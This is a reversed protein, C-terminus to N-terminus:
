SRAAQGQRGRAMSALIGTLCLPAFIWFCIRTVEAFLPYTEPGLRGPGLVSSIVLATLAMSSIQGCLRTVTIVGSAQGLRMPPVASMIANTNPASFLAFGAGFLAMTLILTLLGTDMDLKYIFILLALLIVGLGASALRGPDFRDSLRGSIPTLLAQVLPQAVLILGAQSPAYGKSYQLYLSLLLTVSFSSLYSIFAALSSFSFRRSGTFLGLELIPSKSRRTFFLFAALLALGLIFAEMSLNKGFSALGSFGFGVALAWLLASGVDLSDNPSVPADNKVKHILILPPILGIVTFWFISPWGLHQVMFGSVLPGVSLGIYVSSISLGLVRGRQSKPYAAAVMTTVTTFFTVLGAGTLARSLLLSISSEALAGWASGAIAVWLGAVTLVRRGVIESLRAVPASFMAMALMGSLPLWGLEASTFELDAAISPAAVNLGTLSVNGLLNASIATWLVLRRRTM